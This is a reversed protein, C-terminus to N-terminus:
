RYATSTLRPTSRPAGRVNKPIRPGIVAAFDFVSEDVSEGM